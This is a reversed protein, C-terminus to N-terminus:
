SADQTAGVGLGVGVGVDVGEGVGEGSMVELEALLGSGANEVSISDDAVSLAFDIPEEVIEDATPIELLTAADEDLLSVEEIEAVVDTDGRDFPLRRPINL